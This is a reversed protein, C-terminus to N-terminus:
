EEGGKQKIESECFILGDLGKDRTVQILQLSEDPKQFAYLGEALCHCFYGGAGYFAKVLERARKTSIGRVPWLYYYKGDPVRDARESVFVGNELEDTRESALDYSDRKLSKEM